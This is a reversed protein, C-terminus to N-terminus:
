CFLLWNFPKMFSKPNCHCYPHVLFRKKYITMNFRSIKEENQKTILNYPPRFLTPKEGFCTEFANVALTINEIDIEQAFEHYSHKIGHLGMTKNLSKIKTCWGKNESISNNEFNPIVYIVDAKKILDDCSNTPYVDDIILPNRSTILVVIYIFSLVALLLLPTKENM